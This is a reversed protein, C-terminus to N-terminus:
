FDKVEDLPDRARVLGANKGSLPRPWDVKDLQAALAASILLDDHVHEGSAPDRTGDPVGWRMVQGPGPLVEFTCHRLQAAFSARLREQPAALNGAPCAEAWRGGDVLAIFDWGLRSKSSASFIFPIVRGPMARELFSALGAGVGTADIVVRSAAYAKVAALIEGFLSAHSAGTWVQRYLPRYTPARLLPNARTSLDVAVVTLATSDRESGSSGTFSRSDPAGADLPDAAHNEIGGVDILAAYQWLPSPAPPPGPPFMRAIREPPFLGGEGDVTESYYQTRVFPHSRGLRRIVGSVHRKYAPVERIVDDATMVFASPHYPSDPNAADFRQAEALERALLTQSTWATGWLVRTANTSAAMPAIDRDFREIGVDQAEDVELLTSATAGVINAEPSGSLFTIRANDIRYIYGSEKSWLHQTSINSALVRELRRMANLSQPKWTPSIKVIEAGIRSYRVLLYAEIQAQLENKGSQRPFMVVITRGAQHLVSDIVASMVREQYSRLALDGLRPFQVPDNTLRERLIEQMEETFWDAMALTM